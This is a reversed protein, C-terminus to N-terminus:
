DVERQLDASIWTEMSACPDPIWSQTRSPQKVDLIAPTPIALVIRPDARETKANSQVERTSALHRIYDRKRKVLTAIIPVAEQVKILKGLEMSRSRVEAGNVPSATTAIRMISHTRSMDYGLYGLSWRPWFDQVNKGLQHFMVFMSVARQLSAIRGEYLRMALTQSDSQKYEDVFEGKSRMSEYKHEGYYREVHDSWSMTRTRPIGPHRGEGLKTRREAIEEMSARRSQHTISLMEVADNVGDHRVGLCRKRMNCYDGLLMGSSRGEIHETPLLKLQRKLAVECYFDKRNGKLFCADKCLGITSPNHGITISELTSGISQISSAQSTSLCVANEATTLAMLRGDPRGCLLLAGRLVRHTLRHVLHDSPNASYVTIGAASYSCAFLKSLYAEVCQAVWPTDGAWWWFTLFVGGCELFANM